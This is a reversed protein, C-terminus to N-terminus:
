KGLVKKPYGLVQLVLVELAAEPSKLNHALETYTQQIPIPVFPAGIDKAIEKNREQRDQIFTLARAIDFMSHWAVNAKNMGTKATKGLDVYNWPKFIEKINGKHVVEPIPLHFPSLNYLDATWGLTNIFVKHARLVGNKDAKVESIGTDIDLEHGPDNGYSTHGTLMINALQTRWTHRAIAVGVFDALEKRVALQAEPSLGAMNQMADMGGMFLQSVEKPLIGIASPTKVFWENIANLLLYFNSYTWNRALLFTNGVERAVKSMAEPRLSGMKINVIHAAARGLDQEMMPDKIDGAKFLQLLKTKHMEYLKLQDALGQMEFIYKTMPNAEIIKELKPFAGGKAATNQELVDWVEQLLRRPMFFNLNNAQAEAMLKQGQETSLKKLEDGIFFHDWGLGSSLMIDTFNMSHFLSFSLKLAKITSLINMMGQQWGPNVTLLLNKEIVPALDPHYVREPDMGIKSGPVYENVIKGKIKLVQDALENQGENRLNDHVKTLMRDMGKAEDITMSGRLWEFDPHVVSEHIINEITKAFNAHAFSSFYATLVERPDDVVRKGLLHKRADWFIAELKKDKEANGTLYGEIQQPKIIQGEAVGKLTDISVSFNRHKIHRVFESVSRIQNRSDKMPGWGKVIHSVYNEWYHIDFGTDKLLTYTSDLYSGLINPLHKAGEPLKELLKPNERAKLAISALDKIGNKEGWTNIRDVLKVMYPAIYRTAKAKDQLLMKMVEPSAVGVTNTTNLIHRFSEYAGGMGMTAEKELQSFENLHLPSAPEFMLLNTPTAIVKNKSANALGKILEKTKSTDPLNQYTSELRNQVEKFNMKSIPDLEEPKRYKSILTRTPSWVRKDIYNGMTDGAFRTFSGKFADFSDKLPTVFPKFVPSLWKEIPLAFLLATGGVDALEERALQPDGTKYAQHFGKAKRGAWPIQTAEWVFNPIGKAVDKLEDM